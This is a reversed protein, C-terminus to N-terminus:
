AVKTILGNNFTIIGQQNWYDLIIKVYKASLGFEYNITYELSKIPRQEGLKMELIIEQIRESARKKREYFDMKKWGRTNIREINYKSKKFVVYLYRSFKRRDFGRIREKFDQIKKNITYIKRKTDNWSKRLTEQHIRVLENAEMYKGQFRLEKVLDIDIPILDKQLKM